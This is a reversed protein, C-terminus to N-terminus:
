RGISTMPDIGQFMGAKVAIPDPLREPREEPERDDVEREDEDDELGDDAVVGSSLSRFLM